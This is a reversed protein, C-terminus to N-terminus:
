FSSLFAHIVENVQIKRLKVCVCRRNIGHRGIHKLAIFSCDVTNEILQVIFIFSKCLKCMTCLLLNSRSDTAQHCTFEQIRAPSSPSGGKNM